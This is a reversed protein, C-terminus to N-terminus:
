GSQQLWPKCLIGNQKQFQYLLQGQHKWFSKSNKQCPLSFGRNQEELMFSEPSPNSDHTHGPIGITLEFIFLQARFGMKRFQLWAETKRGMDEM